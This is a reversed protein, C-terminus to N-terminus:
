KAELYAWVADLRAIGPKDMLKVMLRRFTPDTQAESLVARVCEEASEDLHGLKLHNVVWAATAPKRVAVEYLQSVDKILQQNDGKM